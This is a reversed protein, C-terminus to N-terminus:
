NALLPTKWKRLPLFIKNSHYFSTRYSLLGQTMQLILLNLKILFKWRQFLTEMEKRLNESNKLANTLDSIRKQAEEENNKADDLLKELEPTQLINQQSELEALRAKTEELETQVEFSYSVADQLQAQLKNINQDDDFSPSSAEELQSNLSNIEEQLATIQPDTVSANFGSSSLKMEASELKKALQEVEDRLFSAAELEAEKETM